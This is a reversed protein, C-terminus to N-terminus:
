IVVFSFWVLCFSVTLLQMVELLTGFEDILLIQCLAVIKGFSLKYKNTLDTQFFM